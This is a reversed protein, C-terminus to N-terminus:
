EDLGGFFKLPKLTAIIKGSADPVLINGALDSVPTDGILAAFHGATNRDFGQAMIESILIEFDNKEISM